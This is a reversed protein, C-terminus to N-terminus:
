GMGSGVGESSRDHDQLGLGPHSTIRPSDTPAPLNCGEILLVVVLVVLLRM